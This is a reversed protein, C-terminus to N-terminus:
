RWGGGGKRWSGAGGNMAGGRVRWPLGKGGGLGVVAGPPAVCAEVRCLLLRQVGAQLCRARHHASVQRGGGPQQQRRRTQRVAPLGVGGV